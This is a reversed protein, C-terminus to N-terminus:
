RSFSSRKSTSTSSNCRMTRPWGGSDGAIARRRSLWKRGPELPSLPGIASFLPKPANELLPFAPLLVVCVAGVWVAEPVGRLLRTRWFIAM